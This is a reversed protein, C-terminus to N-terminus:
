RNAGLWREPNESYIKKLIGSNLNLGNLVKTEEYWRNYSEMKEKKSQCFSGSKPECNEYAERQRDAQEKYYRNVPECTFHRKELIDKYCQLTKEMFEQDKKATETLVMDTGFLIRDPYEEFFDIYKEPNRSIRRFGAAFFQPSGFSIDTYLNPYKDLIQKVKDIEISSVMYHPIDVVLDPHKRLINELEAGYKKLNIHYLVPLHNREAYAYIPMMRLTDLPLGFIEYYYSHGNYLKLGKGGRQHCDQFIELANSDM